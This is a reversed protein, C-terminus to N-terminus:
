KMGIAMIRANTGRLMNLEHSLSAMHVMGRAIIKMVSLGATSLESRGNERDSAARRAPPRKAMM